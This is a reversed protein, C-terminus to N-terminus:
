ECAYSGPIDPALLNKSKPETWECEQSQSLARCDTEYVVREFRRNVM